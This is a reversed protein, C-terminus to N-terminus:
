PRGLGASADQALLRRYDEPTDCDFPRWESPMPVWALRAGLARLIGRAGDDGRLREVLPWTAPGLAVPHGPVQREGEYDAVWADADVRAVSELMHAVAEARLGAQDVLTVLVATATPAAQLAATLGAQLSASQSQTAEPCGVWLVEGVAGARDRLWPPDEAVVLVPDAGGGLAAECAHALLTAGRWALLPKPRGMRASRGAALVVLPQANPAAEPTTM